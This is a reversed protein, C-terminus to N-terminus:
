MKSSPGMVECGRHNLWLSSFKVDNKLLRFDIWKYFNLLVLIKESGEHLHAVSWFLSGLINFGILIIISTICVCAIKKEIYYIRPM